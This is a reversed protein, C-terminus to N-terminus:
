EININDPHTSIRYGVSPHNDIISDKFHNNSSKCIKAKIRKVQARVPDQGTTEGWAEVSKTISNYHMWGQKNPHLKKDAKM